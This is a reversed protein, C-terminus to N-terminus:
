EIKITDWLYKSKAFFVYTDLFCKTRSFFERIKYYNMWIYPRLDTKMWVANIWLWNAVFIARKLHYDQTFLIADNILFINKARYLTDYTDFWAFDVYVDDERAWLSILYKKMKYPENYKITSNDWSVLIKKIKNKKYADYIVRLRDELIPSPYWNSYVRAWFVIWINKSPLNDINSYIKDSSYYFVILSVIYGFILWISIILLMEDIFYRHLRFYNKLVKM